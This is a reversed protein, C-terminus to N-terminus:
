RDATIATVEFTPETAGEGAFVARVAAQLASRVQAYQELLPVDDSLKLTEDRFAAVEVRYRALDAPAGPRATQLAQRAADLATRVLRAHDQSAPDSHALQAAAQHMRTLQGTQDPALTEVVTALARLAEVVREHDARPETRDLENVAGLLQRAAARPQAAM